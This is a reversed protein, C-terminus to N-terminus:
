KGNEGKVIFRYSLQQISYQQIWAMVGHSINAATLGTITLVGAQAEFSWHLGIAVLFSAGIAVLRNLVKAEAQILPFWKQYKLWEMFHSTAWALAFQSGILETDM